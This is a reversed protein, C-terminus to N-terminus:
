FNAELVMSLAGGITIESITGDPWNIEAQNKYSSLKIGFYFYEGAWYVPVEWGSLDATGSIANTAVVHENPYDDYGAYTTYDAYHFRSSGMYSKIFQPAIVLSDGIKIEFGLSVALLSQQYSLEQRNIGAIEEGRISFEMLRFGVQLGDDTVYSYVPLELLEGKLDVIRSDMEYVGSTSGLGVGM